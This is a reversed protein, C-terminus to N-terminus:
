EEVHIGSPSHRRTLDLLVLDAYNLLSKSPGLVYGSTDLATHLGEEQCRRLLAEVFEAQLPPEGGSITV